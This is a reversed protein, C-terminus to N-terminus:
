VERNAININSNSSLKTQSFDRVCQGSTEATTTAPTSSAQNQMQTITNINAPTTSSYSQTDTPQNLPVSTLPKTQQWYFYGAVGAGVVIIAVVITILTKNSM